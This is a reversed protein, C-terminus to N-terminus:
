EGLCISPHGPHETTCIRLPRCCTDAAMLIKPITSSTPTTRFLVFPIEWLELQQFHEVIQRSYSAIDIHMYELTLWFHWPWLGKSDGTVPGFIGLEWPQM